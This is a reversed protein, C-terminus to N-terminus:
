ASRIFKSNKAKWNPREELVICRGDLMKLDDDSADVTGPPFYKRDSYVKAHADKEPNILHDWKGGYSFVFRFNEPLNLDRNTNKDKKFLTVSKTYGYFIIDPNRRAIEIWKNLYPLSYFDSSAHVRVHTPRKGPKKLKLEATVLDPFMPSKSLAYMTHHSQKVAPYTYNNRRAFCDEICNKAGICLIKGTDTKWAPMSFM